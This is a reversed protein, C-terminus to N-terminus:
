TVYISVLFTLANESFRGALCLKMLCPSYFWRAFSSLYVSLNLMKFLNVFVLHVTCIKLKFVKLNVSNFVM